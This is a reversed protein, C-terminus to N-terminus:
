DRYFIFFFNNAKDEIQYVPTGKYTVEEDTIEYSATHWRKLLNTMEQYLESKSSCVLPNNPLYFRMNTVAKSLSLLIRKATELELAELEEEEAELSKMVNVSDTM